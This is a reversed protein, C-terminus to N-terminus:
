RKDSREFHKDVRRTSFKGHSNDNLFDLVFPYNQDPFAHLNLSHMHLITFRKFYERYDYNLSNTRWKIFRIVSYKCRSLINSLPRYNKFSLSIYRLTLGHKMRFVNDDRMEYLLSDM